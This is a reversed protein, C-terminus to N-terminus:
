QTEPTLGTAYNLHKHSKTHDTFRSRGRLQSGTNEGHNDVCILSSGYLKLLQDAKATAGWVSYLEHAQTLYVSSWYRKDEEDGSGQGLIFKGALENALAKDQVFGLRGATSIADDYKKKVEDKKKRKDLSELEAQLLLLM